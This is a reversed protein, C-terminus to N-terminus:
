DDTFADIFEDDDHGQFARQVPSIVSDTVLRFWPTDRIWRGLVSWLDTNSEPSLLSRLGPQL